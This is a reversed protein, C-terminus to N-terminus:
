GAMISALAEDMDAEDPAELDPPEPLETTDSDSDNASRGADIRWTGNVFDFHAQLSKISKWDGRAILYPNLAYVGRHGAPILIGAKKLQLIRKSVMDIKIGTRQAIREKAFATAEFYIPEDPGCYGRAEQCVALVIDVPIDHLGQFVFMTNLYLKYFDPEKDLTGCVVQTTSIIEGTEKDVVQTVTEYTQHGKKYKPLTLGDPPTTPELPDIQQLKM